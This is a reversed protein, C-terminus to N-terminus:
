CTSTGYHPHIGTVLSDVHVPVPLLCNKNTEADVGAVSLWEAFRGVGIGSILVYSVMPISTTTATTYTAM